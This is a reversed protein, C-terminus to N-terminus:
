VIAVYDEGAVLSIKKIGESPTIMGQIPVRSRFSQKNEGSSTQTTIVVQDPLIEIAKVGEPLYFSVTTKSPEGAFFVSEASNILQIAFNEVQNLIIRDRILGVYFFSLSLTAIVAFTVFSIIIMYEVATQAKKMTNM